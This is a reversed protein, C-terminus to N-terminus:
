AVEESTEALVRALEIRSAVHLRLYVERLHTRVTDISRDLAQAIEKLTAGEAARRAVQLQAPSLLREAPTPDSRHPLEVLFRRGRKNGLRTLRVEGIPLLVDASRRSAERFARVEHLLDSLCGTRELFRRAGASEGWLRLRGDFVLFRRAGADARAGM